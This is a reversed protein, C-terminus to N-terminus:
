EAAICDKMGYAEAQPLNEDIKKRLADQADEGPTSEQKRAAQEIAKADGTEESFSLLLKEIAAADGPPLALANLKGAATQSYAVVKSVISVFEADAAEPPLGKLSEQRAKLPQEQSSLARCIAEARAVFQAKTASASTSSAGGARAGTTSTSSGGGCGSCLVAVLVAAPGLVGRLQGRM